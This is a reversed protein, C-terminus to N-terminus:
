DYLRINGLNDILYAQDIGLYKITTSPNKHGLAQQVLVLDNTKIYLTYAYTKRLSHTNFNELGFVEGIGEMIQKARRETIYGHKGNSNRSPFLYEYPEMGKTYEIIEKRLVKPIVRPIKKNGKGTVAFVEKRRVDIVRLKVLEGVRPGCHVGIMFMMYERRNKEKLYDAIEKVVKKDKIPEVRNM